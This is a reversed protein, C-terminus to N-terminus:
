PKNKPSQEKIKTRQAKNKPTHRVQVSSVESARKVFDDAQSNLEAGAAGDGAAGDGAAFTSAAQAFLAGGDDLSISVSTTEGFVTLCLSLASSLVLVSILALDSRM